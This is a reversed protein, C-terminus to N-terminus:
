FSFRKSEDMGLEDLAPICAFKLMPPPGCMLVQTSANSDGGSNRLVHAQIMDKTVFGSSYKWDTPPCDLLTNYLKFRNPPFEKALLTELEKRVLSSTMKQKTSLYSVPLPLPIKPIVSSQM